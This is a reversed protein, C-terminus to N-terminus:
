NRSFLTAFGSFPQKKYRTEKYKSDPFLNTKINYDNLKLQKHFGFNGLTVM